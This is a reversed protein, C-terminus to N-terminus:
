CKLLLLEQSADTAVPDAGAAASWSSRGLTFELNPMKPIINTIHSSVFESLAFPSFQLHPQKNHDPSTTAQMWEHGEDQHGSSPQHAAATNLQEAITLELGGNLQRTVGKHYNRFSQDLRDSSSTWLSYSELQSPLKKTEMSLLAAHADVLTPYYYSNAPSDARISAASPMTTTSSIEVGSGSNNLSSRQSAVAPVVRFEVLESSDRGSIVVNDAAPDSNCLYGQGAELLALAPRETTTKVTRYMQLHSKVHALTLDKVNMLELVSKPTARQHGGLSEVANVFHQHLTSTWRMRPARMSRLKTCSPFKSMFRGSRFYKAADAASNNTSAIHHYRTINEPSCPARDSAKFELACPSVLCLNTSAALSTSSV